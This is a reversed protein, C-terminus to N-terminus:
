PYHGREHSQGVNEGGFPIALLYASDSGTVPAVAGGMKSSPNLWRPQAIRLLSLNLHRRTVM